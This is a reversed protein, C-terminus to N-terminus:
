TTVTSTLLKCRGKLIQLINNMKGFYSPDYLICTIKKHVANRDSIQREFLRLKVAFCKLHAYMESIQQDKGQRSKNLANLHSTQWGTLTM